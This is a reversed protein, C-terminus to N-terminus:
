VRFGLGGLLLPSAKLSIRGMLSLTPISEPEISLVEEKLVRLAEKALSFALLGGGAAIFCCVYSCCWYSGCGCCYDIGCCCCCCCSTCCCCCCCCCCRSSGVDPYECAVLMLALLFATRILRAKWIRQMATPNNNNDIEQINSEIDEGETEKAVSLQQKCHHLLLYFAAVSDVSSGSMHPALACLVRLSFPM